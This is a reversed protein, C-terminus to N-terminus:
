GTYQHRFVFHPFIQESLLGDKQIVTEEVAETAGICSSANADDFVIYAGKVLHPKVVTYAYEVASKLDCDIHVLAIGQSSRLTSEATEQFLGPVFELNDLGHQKAYSRIESLDVGRGFQGKGHIDISKDPVPLGSFTDLALVKVSPHLRKCLHAMFMASGGLWSGFEIIDGTPIRDLFHRIILFLNLRKAEGQFTRGKAITFAEQYLPDAKIATGLGGHQLGWGRQYGEYVNRGNRPGKALNPWERYIIDNM